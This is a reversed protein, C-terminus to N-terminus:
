TANSIQQKQSSKYRRQMRGYPKKLKLPVRRPKNSIEIITQTFTQILDPYNESLINRSCLNEFQIWDAKNLKWFSRFIIVEVCITM